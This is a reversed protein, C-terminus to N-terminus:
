PRYSLADVVAAFAATTQRRSPYYLFTGARMPCWDELVAVLRGSALHDEVQSRIAYSLGLGDVAADIMLEADNTLFVPDIAVSVARGDREFPWRHIDGSTIYRYGICRHTSLADPSAPAPHDALYAPAAVVAMREDPGIRMSIMDRAILEGTRVGADFGAAVIDTLGGEVSLEVLIDPYDRRLAALKPAILTTAPIRPASIRVRGAPRERYAGLQEIGAAINALAPDLSDLLRCGAETAAVSRTTRSVLKVGLKEELRRIAHSLASPSVHLQAAARTFSKLRAVEAFAALGSLDIQPM